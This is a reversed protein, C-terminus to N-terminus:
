RADSIVGLGAADLVLAPSDDLWLRPDGVKFSMRQREPSVTVSALSRGAAVDVLVVRVRTADLPVRMAVLPLEPHALMRSPRGPLMAPLVRREGEPSILLLHWGGDEESMALLASGDGLAEIAVPWRSGFRSWKAAVREDGNDDVVWWCVVRDDSVLLWTSGDPALDYDPVAVDVRPCLDAALASLVSLFM